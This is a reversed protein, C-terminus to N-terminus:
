KKVIWYGYRKGGKREIKGQEIMRKMARQVSAISVDLKKAIEGQKIKRNFELLELIKMELVDSLVDDLVDSQHKLFKSNQQKTIELASLKLMIDEPHVIYEPLPIGYDACTDCIKQVGRGWSEIYGARFFTRAIAPNYPRSQHRKLLTEATWGSPFVCDNSIYMADDEIRIQIPISTARCSHVLANYFAERVAEKPFPYTEIRTMNDYTITAKLYKLYILDVVREAQIFLSGHVEDQYQLDAGEGFKGIKTYSGAMWKEPMRHFLLVAARTLKDGKLLGLSDLLESDSMSLDEKTMRKNRVAERRFIDFSEKDLDEVQIGDVVVDEWKIGTKSTLFETLAVGRLLQKTSGSRYYYEGRYNVPYSSPSVAIEIYEKGDKLLLNVDAMIGMTTQIKNPVDELLKKSESVGLIKGEDNMGIYIKGGQANAFGCVWKLYEDRWSEKWEINQDEAM